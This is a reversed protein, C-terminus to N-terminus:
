SLSYILYEACEQDLGYNAVIESPDAGEIFEATMDEIVELAEAWILGTAMLENILLRKM